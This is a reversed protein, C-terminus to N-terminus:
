EGGGCEAHYPCARCLWEEETKPALLPDRAELAKLLQDRRELLDKRIVELDDFYVSYTEILFNDKNEKEPQKKPFLYLIILKGENKNLMACYYGLQLIWHRKVERQFSRTTKIEIPENEFIDIHGVVGEYRIEKEKEAGHLDELIDHHGRGATFFSLSQDDVPKPMLKQFASKRLCFVLDSVHIEPRLENYKESLHARLRERLTPDEEIEANFPIPLFNGKYIEKEISM